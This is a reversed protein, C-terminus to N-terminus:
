LVRILILSQDDLQTGHSRSATLLAEELQPLPSQANAAFTARVGEMGFERDFRDFVETLGDTLVLFVDGSACSTEAAIYDRGPLMGLPVQSVALEEVVDTAARWCLIPLHGALTYAIRGPGAPRLAAFTAFMQPQSIEYLVDNLGSLMPELPTPTTLAMRVASKVMGMLVGSPVGHGSVDVLYATWEPEGDHEVVDVLDGGVEGSPSSVGLFDFGGIRTEIRPVLARHIDRALHLETDLEVFEKGSRTIFVLFLTYSVSICAVAGMANITLRKRLAETAPGPALIPKAAPLRDILLSGGVQLLILLPLWVIRTMIVVLYCAAMAAGFITWLALQLLSAHGLGTIDGLLGISAFLCFVAALLLAKSSRNASHWLKRQQKQYGVTLRNSLSSFVSM